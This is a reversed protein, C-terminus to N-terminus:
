HRNLSYDEIFQLYESKDLKANNDKDYKSFQQKLTSVKNAEQESIFGDNNEDIRDFAPPTEQASKGASLDGALASVTISLILTTLAVKKM